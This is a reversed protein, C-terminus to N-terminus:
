RGQVARSSHKGGVHALGLIASVLVFLMILKVNQLALALM